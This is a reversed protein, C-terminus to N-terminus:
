LFLLKVNNFFKGVNSLKREENALTYLNIIAAGIAEMYLEIDSPDAYKDLLYLFWYKLYERNNENIKNSEEERIIENITFIKREKFIKNDKDVFDFLNQTVLPNTPCFKKLDEQLIKIKAM